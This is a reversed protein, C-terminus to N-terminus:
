PLLKIKVKVESKKANIIMPRVLGYLCLECFSNKYNSPYKIIKRDMTSYYCYCYCLHM